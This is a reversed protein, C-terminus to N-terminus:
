LVALIETAHRDPKVNPFVKAITGKEDIIYTSRIIGMVKKGFSEKEGFAGYANIVSKEPDALLHFPLNYKKKFSEHSVVTDASVGLVVAGKGIIDGYVDRLACAETTCGPTDDKPYFYLVIKKGLFQALTIEDGRDNFLSFGPAKTGEKLM